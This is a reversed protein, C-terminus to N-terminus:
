LYGMNLIQYLLIAICLCTSLKFIIESSLVSCTKYNVKKVISFM